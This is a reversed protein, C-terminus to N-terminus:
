ERYNEIADTRRRHVRFYPGHHSESELRDAGGCLRRTAAQGKCIPLKISDGGPCYTVM